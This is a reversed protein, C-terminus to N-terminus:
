ASLHYIQLQIANLSRLDNLSVIESLSKFCEAYHIGVFKWSFTSIKRERWMTREAAKSMNSGINIPTYTSM